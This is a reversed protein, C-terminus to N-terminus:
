ELLYLAPTPAQAAMIDCVPSRRVPDMVNKPKGSIISSPLNFTPHYLLHPRFTAIIRTPIRYTSDRMRSGINYSCRLGSSPDLMSHAHSSHTPPPPSSIPALARKSMHGSCGNKSHPGHSENLFPYPFLVFCVDGRQSDSAM